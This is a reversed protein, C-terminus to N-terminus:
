KLSGRRNCDIPGLPLVGVVAICWKSLPSVCSYFFLTCVFTSYRSYQLVQIPYNRLRPAGDTFVVELRAIGGRVTADSSSVFWLILEPTCCSILSYMSM